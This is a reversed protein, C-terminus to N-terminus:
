QELNFFLLTGTAFGFGGPVITEEENYWKQISLLNNKRTRARFETPHLAMLDTIHIGRSNAAEKAQHFTEAKILLLIKNM